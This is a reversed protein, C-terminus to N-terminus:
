EEQAGEIQLIKGESTLRNKGGLDDTQLLKDTTTMYDGGGFDELQTVGRDSLEDNEDAGVKFSLVMIIITTITAIILLLGMFRTNRIEKEMSVPEIRWNIKEYFRKQLEIALSPNRHLFFGMLISFACFLIIITLAAFEM